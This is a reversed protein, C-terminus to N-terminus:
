IYTDINNEARWEKLYEGLALSADRPEGYVLMAMGGKTKREPVGVVSWMVCKSIKQGQLFM